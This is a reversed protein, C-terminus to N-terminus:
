EPMGALRAGECFHLRDEPRRLVSLIPLKSIRVSSDIQLARGMASRADENRGALAAAVAYGWMAPM